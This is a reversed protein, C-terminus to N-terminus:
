LTLKIMGVAPLPEIEIVAFEGIVSGASNTLRLTEASYNQEEILIEYSAIVFSEGNAKGKNSYKNALYQCPIKDGWAVSPAIPYGTTPDIGGGTKQKAEIHGNAIIM